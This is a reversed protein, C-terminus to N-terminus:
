EVDHVCNIVQLFEEEMQFGGKKKEIKLVPNSTKISFSFKKIEEACHAEPDSDVALYMTSM